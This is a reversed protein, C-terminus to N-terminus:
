IPRVLILYFYRQVVHTFNQSLSVKNNPEVDKTKGYNRKTTFKQIKTKNKQLFKVMMLQEINKPKRTHNQKIKKIIYCIADKNKTELLTLFTEDVYNIFNEVSEIAVQLKTKRGKRPM